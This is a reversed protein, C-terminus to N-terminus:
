KCYKGVAKPFLGPMEDPRKGNTATISDFDSKIKQYDPKYGRKPGLKPRVM